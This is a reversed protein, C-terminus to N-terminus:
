KVNTILDSKKAMEQDITSHHLILRLLLTVRSHSDLQFHVHCYEFDIKIPRKPMIPSGEVVPQLYNPPNLSEATAVASSFCDDNTLACCHGSCHCSFPFVESGSWDLSAVPVSDTVARM